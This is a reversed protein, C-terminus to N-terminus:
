QPAPQTQELKDLAQRAQNIADQKRGSMQQMAKQRAAMAKDKLMHRLEEGKKPSVLAGIAAGAGLGLLFGAAIGPITNM